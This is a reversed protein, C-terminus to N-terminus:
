SRPEDGGGRRRFQGGGQPESAWLVSAKRSKIQSYAARFVQWCIDVTHQDPRFAHAMQEYPHIYNRFDRLVHSFKAVDLELLGLSRAVDILESLKWDPLQKTKGAADKPASPSSMFAKPHQFGVALLVGELTSGLLFIAGLAVTDRPTAQAEDIRAQLFQTIGAELGLEDIRLEENFRRSLFEEEDKAVPPRTLEAEDLDIEVGRRLEPTAGSFGVSLSEMALIGRMSRLALGLKTKDGGYQRIDVLRLIVRELADPQLRRLVELVWWKRTTGDHVADVGVARFFQTLYTSSRYTPFRREDDGCIFDALASLTTEDLKRGLHISEDTGM